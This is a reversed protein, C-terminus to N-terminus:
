EITTGGLTRAYGIAMSIRGRLTSGIVEEVEMVDGKKQSLLVSATAAIGRVMEVIWTGEERAIGVERLPTIAAM